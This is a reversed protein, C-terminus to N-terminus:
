EAQKTFCTLVYGANQEDFSISKQREMVGQNKIYEKFSFNINKQGVISFMALWLLLTAVLLRHLVLHGQYKSELSM